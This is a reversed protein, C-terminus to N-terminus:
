KNFVTTTLEHNPATLTCSSLFCYGPKTADKLQIFLYGMLIKYLHKLCHQNMFFTLM